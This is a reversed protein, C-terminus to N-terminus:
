KIFEMVATYFAEPQEAHIWHGANAITKVESNPFVKKIQPIDEDLIYKSKEGRLFLAPVNIQNNGIEFTEGVKEINKAIVDLNFRWSLKKDELWYLNKLLFQKTGLDRIMKGLQEEAQKRETITELDVSYLADIVDQQHPPYHKPAIDAVILKDTVEPYDAAFQMATKGGMSHGLIIVNHLSNDRILDYIDDSMVKYSWEESHPSHGHNRQDVLYVEFNQSFKKGLTQWNDASGFLGHLIILPQGQGLKKYALKM